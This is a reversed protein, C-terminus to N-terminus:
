RDIRASLRTLESPRRDSLDLGNLEDVVLLMAGPAGRSQVKFTARLLVGDAFGTLSAGAARIVGNSARLAAVGSAVSEEDVFKLRTTDYAVRLTFGGVHEPAAAATLSATVVVTSGVAGNEPTVVLRTLAPPTPQAPGTPPEARDCGSIAALGAVVLLSVTRRTTTM